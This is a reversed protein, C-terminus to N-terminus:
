VERRKYFVISLYWSLVYVTVMVICLFPLLRDTSFQITKMNKLLTSAAACAGCFVGIMIYYAIRGKEVGLKFMFPLCISASFCSLILLLAIFTLYSKMDFTQNLNMRVAQALASLAIVAIQAFLGMLYKASVIQTKTYPLIGCYHSWKSREDYGLLTVPLNGSILCPYFTFFFNDDNAVSIFIFVAAFLLLTRCYKMTMYFDKLLLGKM